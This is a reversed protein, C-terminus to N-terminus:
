PQCTLGAFLSRVGGARWLERTADILTRVGTSTAQWPASGKAMLADENKVATQAILYVKLRDLPATTTRSVAGAIGGALFYGIHPTSETLKQEYYRFSMWIAVIRPLPLWELEFDSELFVLDVDSAPKLHSGGRFHTQSLRAITDKSVPAQLTDYFLGRVALLIHKLFSLDTGLGQLPENIHVDGEPNLNGTASYYSLVTRMNPNDEPLFLLFDRDM